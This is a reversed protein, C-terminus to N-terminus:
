STSEASPMKVGLPALFWETGGTIEQISALKDNEFTFKASAVPWVIKKGSAPIVGLGLASLDLDGTQTGEFHFSAIVSDGEERLDDWVEKFDKFATHVLQSMGIYMEKNMVVKGDKDLNQFNDSFYNANTPSLPNANVAASWAKLHEIKNTM